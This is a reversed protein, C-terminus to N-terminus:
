SYVTAFVHAVVEPERTRSPDSLDRLRYQIHRGPVIQDNGRSYDYDYRGIPHPRIGKSAMIQGIAIDDWENLLSLDRASALEEALDRSMLIGAGNVFLVGAERLITGAYFGRRPLEMRQLLPFDYLSSLNTRLVYDHDRLLVEVAKVTKKLITDYREQGRCLFRRGEVAHDSALHPISRLFYGEIDPNRDLVAEWTRRHAAYTEPCPADSDIVLCLIKM